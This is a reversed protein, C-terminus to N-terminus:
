ATSQAGVVGLRIGGANINNIDGGFFEGIDPVTIGVGASEAVFIKAVELFMDFFVGVFVDRVALMERQANSVYFQGTIEFRPASRRKSCIRMMLSM